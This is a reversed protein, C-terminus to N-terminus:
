KVERGIQVGLEKATDRALPTILGDKRVLIGTGDRRARRVDQETVLALGENVTERARGYITEPM